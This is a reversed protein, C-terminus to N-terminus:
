LHSEHAISAAIACVVCLAMAWIGDNTHQLLLLVCSGLMSLGAAYSLFKSIDENKM